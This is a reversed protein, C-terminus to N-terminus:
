RCRKYYDSLSFASFLHISLEFVNHMWGCSNCVSANFSHLLVGFAFTYLRDTCKHNQQMLASFLRGILCVLFFLCLGFALLLLLEKGLKSFFSFVTDSDSHRDRVCVHVPIEDRYNYQVYVMHPYMSGFLVSAYVITVLLPYLCKIGKRKRMFLCKHEVLAM